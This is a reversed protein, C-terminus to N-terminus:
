RSSPSVGVLLLAVFGSLQVPGLFRPCPTRPLSQPFPQSAPHSVRFMRSRPESLILMPPANLSRIGGVCILILVGVKADAFSRTSVRLPLGPVRKAALRCRPQVMCRSGLDQLGIGLACRCHM